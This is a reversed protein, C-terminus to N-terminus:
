RAPRVRVTYGYRTGKVDVVRGIFALRPLARRLKPSAELAGGGVTVTISSRGTKPLGRVTLVGSRSLSWQKTTVKKGGASVAVGKRLSKTVVSLGKPISVRLTSLRTTGARARVTLRPAKAVRSLRVALTPRRASAAKTCTGVLNVAQSSTAHQGTLSDFAGDIARAGSCLNSSVTFLGRPGGTFSLEFRSVPTAPLGDLTTVLRGGQLASQGTLDLSLLGGLRIVLKPLGGPNDVLYVPGALPDPLLPSFAKASGVRTEAPCANAALQAASCLTGLAVVNPNLGQPLSVVAKGIAAQHDPQTVV